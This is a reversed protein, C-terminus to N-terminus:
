VEKVWFGSFKRVNDVFLFSVREPLSPSHTFQPKQLNDIGKGPHQRDPRSNQGPEGDDGDKPETEGLEPM